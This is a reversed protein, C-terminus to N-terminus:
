IFSFFFVFKMYRKLKLFQIFITIFRIECSSLWLIMVFIHSMQSQRVRLLKCCFSAYKNVLHQFTKAKKKYLYISLRIGLRFSDKFGCTRMDRLTILRSLAHVLSGNRFLNFVFSSQVLRAHNLWVSYRNIQFAMQMQFLSALVVIVSNTTVRVSRFASLGSVPSLNLREIIEGEKVLKEERRCENLWRQNNAPSKQSGTNIM